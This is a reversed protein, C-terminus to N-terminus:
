ISHTSPRDKLKTIRRDMPLLLLYLRQGKNAKNAKLYVTDSCIFIVMILQIFFSFQFFFISKVSNLLFSGVTHIMQIIFQKTAFACPLVTVITTKSVGSEDESEDSSEQYIDDVYEDKDDVVYFDVNTKSRATNACDWDTRPTVHDDYVSLQKMQFKLARIEELLLRQTKM